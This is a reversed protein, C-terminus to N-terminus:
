TTAPVAAADPVSEARSSQSAYKRNYYEVDEFFAAAAYTRIDTRARLCLTLLRNQRDVLANHATGHEVVIGKIRLLEVARASAAGLYAADIVVGGPRIQSALQPFDLILAVLGINDLLIDMTGSGKAIQRYNHRADKDDSQEVIYSAVIGMQRREKQALTLNEDFQARKEPAEPITGVREGHTQSLLALYGEYKGMRSWDFGAAVLSAQDRVAQALIGSYDDIFANIGTGPRRYDRKDLASIENEIETQLEPTLAM